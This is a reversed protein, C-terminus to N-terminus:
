VIGHIRRLPRGGLRIHCQEKEARQKVRHVVRRLAIVGGEIAQRSANNQVFTRLRQESQSDPRTCLSPEASPQPRLGEGAQRGAFLSNTKDDVARHTHPSRGVESLNSSRDRMEPSNTDPKSALEHYAPTSAGFFVGVSIM